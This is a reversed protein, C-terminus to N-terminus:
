VGNIMFVDLRQRIQTECAAALAKRDPYDSVKLPPHYCVSVRGQPSMALVRKLHNGFDMDGWWAYCRPDAGDPAHYLLTVPQIYVKNRLEPEFFAAFLSSKFELVRRGDSSTGEPFFLLKHKARLRNYFLKKQAGAQKPDREIFVTGAARVVGGVVPWGAVESKSVFFVRKRTSLALIDLWGAHNAVIGGHKRMPQGEIELKIGTLRLALGCAIQAVYASLPRKVGYLPWELLRAFLLVVLGIGLVAVIAAGRLVMRINELVSLPETEPPPTEGFWTVM